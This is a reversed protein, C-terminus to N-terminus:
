AFCGCVVLQFWLPIFYRAMLFFIKISPGLDKLFKYKTNFYVSIGVISALSTLIKSLMECFTKTPDQLDLFQITKILFSLYILDQSVLCRGSSGGGIEILKRGCIPCWTRLLDGLPYSHSARRKSTVPM